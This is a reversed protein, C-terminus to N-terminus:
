GGSSLMAAFRDTASLLASRIGPEAAAHGADPVIQLESDPWARHLEWANELPCILDYRGHVIVGPIGDLRRAEELLQGPRLFADNVFYHAEIRALSLAVHASGFHEVVGPNPQLTATRGEWISWAKAAALRSVEDDGTLIRHYAWLLDGREAM